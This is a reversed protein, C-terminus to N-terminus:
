CGCDCDSGCDNGCGCNNCGCNNNCNNCGCGGGCGGWGFLIIILFIIWLASNSGWGNNGCM